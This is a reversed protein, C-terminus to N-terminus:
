LYREVLKGKWYYETLRIAGDENYYEWKGHKISCLKRNWLNEWNDTDNEKYHGIIKLAGSPYYEMWIGVRCDTYQAGEYLLVDNEDYTKFYCPRCHDINDWITKYKEYTAQNVRKDNVWYKTNNNVTEARLGVNYFSLTDLNIYVSTSDFDYRDINEQATLAGFCLLFGSFGLLLKLQIV